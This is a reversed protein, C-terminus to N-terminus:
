RGARQGVREDRCTAVRDAATLPACSRRIKRRANGAPFGPLLPERDEFMFGLRNLKDNIGILQKEQEETRNDIRALMNRNDVDRQTEPDLSTPLGFIETLTATFGMGRPHTYPSSVTVKGADDAFMVRVDERDLAAITLPNHSTLVIQCKDADGAVGTWERILELYSHQWLPNLHTDPEDLLFCPVSEERPASSAWYWLFSGSAM